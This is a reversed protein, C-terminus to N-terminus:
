SLKKIKNELETIRKEYGINRNNIINIQNAFRNIVEAKLSFSDLKDNMKDDIEKKLARFDSISDSHATKTRKIYANHVKSMEDYFEDVQLKYASIDLTLEPASRVLDELSTPALSGQWEGETIEDIRKSLEEREHIGELLKVQIAPLTDDKFDQVFKRLDIKQQSLNASAARLNGRNASHHEHESCRYKKWTHSPVTFTKGCRFGTEEIIHNCERTPM